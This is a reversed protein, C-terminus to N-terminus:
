LAVFTWRGEESKKIRYYTNKPTEDLTQSAFDKLTKELEAGPKFYKKWYPFIVLYKAHIEFLRYKKVGEIELDRNRGEYDIKFLSTVFSDKYKNYDAKIQEDSVEEPVYQVVFYYDEPYEKSSYLRMKHGSTAVVNNAIEIAKEQSEIGRLTKMYKYDQGQCLLALLLMTFLLLKKM